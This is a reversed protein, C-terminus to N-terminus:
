WDIDALREAELAKEFLADLQSIHHLATIHSVLSEPVDGFRRRLLKLVADRKALVQGQEIGREMGQEIGQEMGRTMGQEIGREILVEAMSQAM